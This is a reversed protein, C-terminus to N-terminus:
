RSGLSEYSPPLEIVLGADRHHVYRICAAQGSMGQNATSLPTVGTITTDREMNPPTPPTHTGSGPGDTSALPRDTPLHRPSPYLHSGSRTATEKGPLGDGSGLGRGSSSETQRDQLGVSPRGITISAHAAQRSMAIERSERRRKMAFYLILILLIIVIAATGVAAGVVLGTSPKYEEEDVQRTPLPQDATVTASTFSTSARARGALTLTLTIALVPMTQTFTTM